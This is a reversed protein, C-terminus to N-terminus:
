IRHSHSKGMYNLNWKIVSGSPVLPIQGTNLHKLPLPDIIESTSIVIVRGSKLFDEKKKNTMPFPIGTVTQESLKFVM